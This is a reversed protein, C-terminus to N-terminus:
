RLEGKAYDSIASAASEGYEIDPVQRKARTVLEHPDLGAGRALIVAAAYVAEIQLSAPMQQIADVVQFAPTRVREASVSAALALRVAAPHEDWSRHAM